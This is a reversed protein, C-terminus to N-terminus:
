KSLAANLAELVEVEISAEAAVNENTSDINKKADALQSKVAASDFDKLAAAEVSLIDMKSNPMVSAFGGSIFFKDSHSPSDFIEVIGPRLQEIVPVHNALIGMDGTAAPINVQFVDKDKLVTQHPLAISLRLKNSAATAKPAAAEAYTRFGVLRNVKSAARITQRFM